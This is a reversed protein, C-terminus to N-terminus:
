WVETHIPSLLQLPRPICSSLHVETTNRPFPFDRVAQVKDPDIEIGNKSIIHGLYTVSNVGFSCKSANLKLGADRLATFVKDLADMHQEIKKSYVIIDDLNLLCCEFALGALVSDLLRQFAAPGNRIGFPVTTWQYLGRRTSFPTKACSANELPLQHVRPFHGTDLINYVGLLTWIDDQRPLRYADPITVENLRRCDVCFRM